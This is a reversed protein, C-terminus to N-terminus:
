DECNMEIEIRVYPNITINGLKANLMGGFLSEQFNEKHWPDAGGLSLRQLTSYKMFQEDKVMKDRPSGQVGATASSAEHVPVEDALFAEVNFESANYLNDGEKQKFSSDTGNPNGGPLQTIWSDDQMYGDGTYQTMPLSHFLNKNYKGPSAFYGFIDTHTPSLSQLNNPTGLLPLFDIKRGDGYNMTYANDPLDAAVVYDM